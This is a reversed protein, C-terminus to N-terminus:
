LLPTGITFHLRWPQGPEDLAMAYDVRIAGAISYWRIGLGVGKKLTVDDWSNFANGVDAFAAASWDPRFNYELEASAIAINNSGINNDSLDNFGYGRVSRSGGAKFRYAFPLETVSLDITEDGQGTEITRETVSADSYGLEGRLLIKWREGFIQNWASGIYAQNFDVESGWAENSTYLWVHTNHGVTEFATGRIVPWDWRVGAALTRTDDNLSLLEEGLEPDDPLSEGDDLTLRFDTKEHLYRVSWQEFIREYGRKLDRVRLWGPAFLYDIVDGRALRLLNDEQGSPQVLLDQKESKLNLDATWFQRAKERRPLRYSSRINFQNDTDQWGFGLSFNDGRPSLLHRYWTAHLRFGTDSGFGISGQYTNRHRDDLNVVLNVVPPTQELRREEIVEIDTFYGTRWLDLRFEELLWEDYAQGPSFRPIVEMINDNVTDQNFIVDGMVAQPGTKMHLELRARMRELDLEIRQSSYSASLYGHVEAQELGAAKQEEWVTQDLIAGSALPLQAMWNKLERDNEGPGSIQVQVDEIIVPQGKDITLTLLWNEKSVEKIDSSVTAAYYGYPRLAEVARPVSDEKMTQLRKRHIRAAGSIRFPQVSALVNAKLPDEIGVVRVELTNAFALAPTLLVFLALIRRM